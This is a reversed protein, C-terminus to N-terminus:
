PQVPRVLRVSFGDYMIYNYAPDVYGSTFYVYYARGPSYVTSSWYYGNSGVCTVSTGDRYGAAPLFVCGASEFTSWDSGSYEDGTYDDPYLVVGMKGEVSQDLTYSKGNGTGGNVTRTNFLYVWEDKSLTYWGEGMRSGWDYTGNLNAYATYYTTGNYAPSDINGWTFLDMPLKTATGNAKTGDAGLVDYQHEAFKWNTGDYQLNGQSFYVKRPTNGDMGVTFQGSLAGAAQKAMQLTSQYFKGKTFSVNNKSFAYTKSDSGTATFSVTQNSVEPLAAYLTNTADSPTIVYAQEGITITLASVNIDASGNQTTFKFIAFQAAPQTSVTLGHTTTQITGEGVRVDLNASLTGNQAALLTAADKVGTNDDKAASAPYVLTCTTNDPPGDAVSFSITAAGSGDVATITADAVKKENGVTYLIAIQEDVAWTVTIKNDGNDAVARTAAGDSKPALKATITIGEGKAPQAADNDDNSCAAFTLALAAMLFFKTTKM